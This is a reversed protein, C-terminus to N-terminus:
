CSMKGDSCHQSEGYIDMAPSMHGEKLVEPPQLLLPPPRCCHLLLPPPRCCHLLLLM